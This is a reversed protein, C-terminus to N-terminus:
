WVRLKSEQANSVDFYPHDCDGFFMVEHGTKTTISECPSPLSGSDEICYWIHSPIQKEDKYTVTDVILNFLQNIQQRMTYKVEKTIKIKYSKLFLQEFSCNNILLAKNIDQKTYWGWPSELMAKYLAGQDNQFVARLTMPALKGDVEGPLALRIFKRTEPFSDVFAQDTETVFEIVDKRKAPKAEEIFVSHM